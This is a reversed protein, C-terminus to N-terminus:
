RKCDGFRKSARFPGGQPLEQVSLHAMEEKRNLKGLSAKISITVSKEQSDFPSRKAITDLLSGLRPFRSGTNRDFRINTEILWLMAFVVEFEKTLLSTKEGCFSGKM